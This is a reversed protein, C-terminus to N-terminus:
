LAQAGESIGNRQVVKLGAGVAQHREKAALFRLIGLESSQDERLREM